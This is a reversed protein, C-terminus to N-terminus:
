NLTQKCCVQKSPNQSSSFVAVSTQSKKNICCPIAELIKGVVNIQNTEQFLLKRVSVMM